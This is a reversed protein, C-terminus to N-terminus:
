RRTSGGIFSPLLFPYTYRKKKKKFLSLIETAPPVALSLIFTPCAYTYICVYM